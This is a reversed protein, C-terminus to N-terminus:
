RFRRLFSQTLGLGPRIFPQRGAFPANRAFEARTEFAATLDRVRRAVKLPLNQGSARLLAATKKADAKRQTAAQREKGRAWITFARGAAVVQKRTFALIRGGTVKREAYPEAHPARSILRSEVFTVIARGTVLSTVYLRSGALASQIRGERHGRRADYGQEIKRKDYDPDNRRLKRGAVIEAAYSNYIEDQLLSAFLDIQRQWQARSAISYDVGEIVVQNPKRWVIQFGRPNRSATAM